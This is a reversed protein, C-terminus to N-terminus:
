QNSVYEVEATYLLSNTWDEFYKNGRNENNQKKYQLKLGNYKSNNFDKKNIIGEQVM